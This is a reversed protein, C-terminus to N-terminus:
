WANAVQDILNRHRSLAELRAKRVEDVYLGRWKGTNEILLCGVCAKAESM